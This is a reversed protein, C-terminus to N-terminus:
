CPQKFEYKKFSGDLFHVFCFNRYFSKEMGEIPEGYISPVKYGDSESTEYWRDGCCDCDIDNNCGDFYIGIDEARRNADDSNLAEVCVYESIGRKKDIDFSGGSNNQNYTYFKTEIERKM